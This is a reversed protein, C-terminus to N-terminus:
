PILPPFFLVGVSTVVLGPSSTPNAKTVRVQLVDGAVFTVPTVLIVQAAPTGPSLTFSAVVTSTGLLLEYLIDNGVAGIGRRYFFNRIEGDFPLVMFLRDDTGAIENEYGPSLYRVDAANGVVSNGFFLSAGFPPLVVPPPPPTPPAILLAKSANPM